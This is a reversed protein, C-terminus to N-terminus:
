LNRGEHRDRLLLLCKQILTLELGDEVGTSWLVPLWEVIERAIEEMMRGQEEYGHKWDRKVSKNLAKFGEDLSKKHEDYGIAKLKRSTQDSEHKLDSLAESIATKHASPLADLVPYLGKELLKIFTDPPLSASLARLTSSPRQNPSLSMLYNPNRKQGLSLNRRTLSTLSSAVAIVAPGSCLNWLCFHFLLLPLPWTDAFHRIKGHCGIRSEVFLADCTLFHVVVRQSDSAL